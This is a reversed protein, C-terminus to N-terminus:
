WGPANPEKLMKIPTTMRKIIIKSFNKDLELQGVLYSTELKFYIQFYDTVISSNIRNSIGFSTKSSNMINFRKSTPGGQINQMNFNILEVGILYKKSCEDFNEHNKISVNPYEPYVCEILYRHNFSLNYDQLKTEIIGANTTVTRSIAKKYENVKTKGLEFVRFALCLKEGSFTIGKKYDVSIDFNINKLKEDLKLKLESNLDKDLKLFISDAKICEYIVFQGDRLNIKSFDKVTYISLNTYNITVYSLYEAGLNFYSLISLDLNQKFSKNIEFSKVSKNISINDESTGSGNVGVGNIWEAGLPINERPIKLTKFGDFLGQGHVYVALLIFVISITIKM